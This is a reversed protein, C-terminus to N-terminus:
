NGESRARWARFLAKFKPWDRLDGLDTDVELKGLHDYDHEVALEVQRLARALDGVAVYACAASHFIYPNEHAVPQARDAIRVAAAYAKSAHAQICANNLAQLYSQRADGDDPIPLALLRDYLAIASDGQKAEIARYALQSLLEVDDPLLSILRPMRDPAYALIAEGLEAFLEDAVDGFSAMSASSREAVIREPLAEGLAVDVADAFRAHQAKGMRTAVNIRVGVAFTPLLALLGDIRGPLNARDADLLLMAHTFQTDDDDPALVLARETMALAAQVRTPDTPRDDDDGEEDEDEEDEDEEDDDEDGEEDDDDGGGQEVIRANEVDIMEQAAAPDGIGKVEVARNQQDRIFSPTVEITLRPWADFGYVGALGARLQREIEAVLEPALEVDVDSDDASVVRSAAGPAITLSVDRGRLEYSRGHRLRGRMARPLAAAYLAGLVIRVADGDIAVAMDGAFALDESSGEADVLQHVEAATVPDALLSPRRLSTILMASQKRLMDVLRTTSWEQILRYEDDTIGVIQVFRAKGFPSAISEGLEPDDTFCVATIATEEGLAIPGNLGMKHGAAFRNGTGFVYRGLNQLFNLAWTPPAEDTPARALRFTLEFGFGSEDPDDTEKHFLDTFGYTVVHWHLPETRAYASIGHLPDNGGLMYPLVTGFHATPEAGHYVADLARDIAEWGPSGGDGDDDGSGNGDPRALVGALDDGRVLAGALIVELEPALEAALRSVAIARAADDLDRLEDLM